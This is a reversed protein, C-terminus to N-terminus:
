TERYRNCNKDRGPQKNEQYLRHGTENLFNQVLRDALASQDAERGELTIVWTRIKDPARARDLAGAAGPSV